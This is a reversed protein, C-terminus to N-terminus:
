ATGPQSALPLGAAQIMGAALTPARFMGSEQYVKDVYNDAVLGYAFGATHTMLERMTASRSIPELIPKGDADLGKFVKLGAFEPVYKTVPEDLRWKGEEYLMMMAVGTVPKTQSYMRWITDATVPAGSASDVKGYIDSHVVRGHRVLVTAIGPVMGKDVVARMGADLRELRASSFGMKEPKAAPVGVAVPKDAAFAPQPAAYLAALLCIGVVLGLLSAFPNFRKM